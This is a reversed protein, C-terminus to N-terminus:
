GQCCTGRFGKYRKAIVIHNEACVTIAICVGAFATVLYRNMLVDNGSPAIGNDKRIGTFRRRCRQRRGARLFASRRRGGKILKAAERM